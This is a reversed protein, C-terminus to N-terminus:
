EPTDLGSSAHGAYFYMLPDFEEETVSISVLVTANTDVPNPRMNADDIKPRTYSYESSM